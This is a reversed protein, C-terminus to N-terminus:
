LLLNALVTKQGFARVAEAKRTMIEIDLGKLREAHHRMEIRTRSEIAAIKGGFTIDQEAYEYASLLSANLDDMAKLIALRRDMLDSLAKLARDSKMHALDCLRIHKPDRM